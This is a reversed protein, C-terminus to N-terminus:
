RRRVSECDPAVRDGRVGGDVTARDRGAGCRVEDETRDVSGLLDGGAGGLVTDRGAGGTLWDNGGQGILADSGAGGRLRDGGPGGELVNDADSGTLTDVADGGAINEVTLLQYDRDKVAFAADAKKPPILCALGLLTATISLIGIGFTKKDM